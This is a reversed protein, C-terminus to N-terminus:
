PAFEHPRLLQKNMDIVEVRWPEDGVSGTRRHPPPTLVFGEPIFWGVLFRGPGPAKLNGRRWWSLIQGPFLGESCSSGLSRDLDQFRCAFRGSRVESRALYRHRRNRWDM